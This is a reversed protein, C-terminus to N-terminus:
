SVEPPLGRALRLCRVRPSRPLGREFIEKWFEPRVVPASYLHRSGFVDLKRNKLKGKGYVGSGFLVVHFFGYVAEFCFRFVKYM